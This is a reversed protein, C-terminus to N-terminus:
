YISMKIAVIGFKYLQVIKNDDFGIKLSVFKFESTDNPDQPAWIFKYIESTFYKRLANLFLQTQVVIWIKLTKM